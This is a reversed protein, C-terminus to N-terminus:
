TETEDNDDATDHAAQLSAIDLKHMRLMALMTRNAAARDSDAMLERLVRPLVQWSIGYKDKLWGCQEAQPVASLAQWYHDVEAKDECDIVFSISENYPFVIGGNLAMFRQGQLEFEVTMVSGPPQRHTEQGAESYHSVDIIRGDKFVTVYFNAAEEAETSFWL